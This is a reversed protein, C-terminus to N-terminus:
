GVEQLLREMSEARTRLVAIEAVARDLSEAMRTQAANSEELLRRYELEHASNARARFVEGMQVAITMCVAAVAAFAALPVFEFPM